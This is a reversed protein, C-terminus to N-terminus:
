AQRLLPPGVMLVISGTLSWDEAWCAQVALALPSLEELCEAILRIVIGHGCGPCFSMPNDIIAPVKRTKAM